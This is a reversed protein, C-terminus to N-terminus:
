FVGEFNFISDTITRNALAYESVKNEFFNTKKEISILEMWDFPNATYYIKDYGLQICLRDAVFQIYQSMLEANMGILRCPIADIIFGLEIHVAEKIISHIIDQSPKFHLHHFLAVAFEVHLAEDRSILENAFALGKFLNRKKLWFICCFSGSFMIGEVCAFAVLREAFSDNCTIKNQIWDAKVKICPYGTISQLLAHKDAPDKIFTDIMNSYSVAHIGEFFIQSSYFLRAEAVQVEDCFRGVLNENVIGDACAFFALIIGLFHQENATMNNWDNVDQAFDLEDFHWFCEISKKYLDYLDRYKVPLATFRALDAKLIPELADM